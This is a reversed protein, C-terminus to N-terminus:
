AYSIKVHSSNLRTSKRDQFELNGKMLEDHGGTGPGAPHADLFIVAPQYVDELMKHLVETSKGLYLEVRDKFRKLCHKYFPEHIECSKITKFGAKLARNISEGYCSGSEVYIHSFNSYDKINFTPM